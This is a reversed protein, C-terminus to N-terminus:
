AHQLIMVMPENETRHILFSTSILKDLLVDYTHSTINVDSLYAACPTQVWFTPNGVNYTSLPDLQPLKIHYSITEFRKM